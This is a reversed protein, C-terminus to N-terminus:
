RSITRKARNSRTENFARRDTEKNPTKRIPKDMIIEFMVDDKKNINEKKIKRTDKAEPTKKTSKVTRAKPTVDIKTDEIISTKNRPKVVVKTEEKLEVKGQWPRFYRDYCVVEIFCEREGVPFTNKLRPVSVVYSNNERHADFSYNINNDGEIVMRVAVDNENITMSDNHIAIELDVINEETIELIIKNM